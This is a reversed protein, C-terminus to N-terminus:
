SRKPEGGMQVQPAPGPGIRVPRGAVRVRLVYFIMLKPRLLIKEMNYLEDKIEINCIVVVYTIYTGVIEAAKAVGTM